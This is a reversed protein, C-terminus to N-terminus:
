DLSPGSSRRGRRVNNIELLREIIM